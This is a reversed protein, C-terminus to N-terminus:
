CLDKGTEKGQAPIMMDLWLGGTVVGRSGHRTAGYTFTGESRLALEPSDVGFLAPLM